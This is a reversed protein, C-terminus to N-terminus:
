FEKMKHGYARCAAIDEKELDPFTKILEEDCDGGALYENIASVLYRTNRLVPKGHCIEPNLTIRKTLDDM